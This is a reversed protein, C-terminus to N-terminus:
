DVFADMGGIEMSWGFTIIVYGTPSMKPGFLWAAGLPSGELLPLLAADRHADEAERGYEAHFAAILTLLRLADEPTALHIATTM